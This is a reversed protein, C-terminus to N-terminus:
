QHNMRQDRSLLSPRPLIEICEIDLMSKRVVVDQLHYLQRITLNHHLRLTADIKIIVRM